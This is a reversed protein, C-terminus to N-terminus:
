NRRGLEALSENVLQQQDVPGIERGLIKSAMATALTAAETHLEAVASAKAAEIDSTARAMRETLEKENKERLEEGLKKAQERAEAIM